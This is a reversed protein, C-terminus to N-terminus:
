ISTQTPSTQLALVTPQAVLSKAFNGIANSLNTNQNQALALLQSYLESSLETESVGTSLLNSTIQSALQQESLGGQFLQDQIQAALQSESVGEQLLQVAIQEGQNAATQQINAIQTATQQGLNNLDQAMASTDGGYAAYQSRISAAQAAAAQNVQDTAAQVATQIATTVAPPLTGTTLYQQLATGQTAFQNAAQQLAPTAATTAAAGAQGLQTATNQLTAPANGTLAAGQTALNGAQTNLASQGPLGQNRQGIDFALGAGAAALGLLQAPSTGLFDAVSSLGTADAISGLVGGGGAGTPLAFPANGGLPAGSAPALASPSGAGLLPDTSAASAAGGLPASGAPTLGAATLDSATTDTAAPPGIEPGILDSPLGAQASAPLAGAPGGTLDLTTGTDPAVGGIDTPLGAAAAIDAPLTAATGLPGAAITTGLGGTPVDEAISAALDPTAAEGAAAGGIGLLSAVAPAATALIGGLGIELPLLSSVDSAQQALEGSTFQAQAPTPTAINTTPDVTFAPAGGTIADVTQGALVPPVFAGSPGTSTVSPSLPLDIPIFTLSGDASTGTYGYNLQGNLDFTGLQGSGPQIGYNIGTTEVGPLAATVYAPLDAGQAVPTFGAPLTSFAATSNTSGSLPGYPGAGFAPLLSATQQASQTTSPDDFELLGTTPNRSGRGGISKLLMAERPTIHALIRDKGRGMRQMAQALSLPVANM